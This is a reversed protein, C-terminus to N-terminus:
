TLLRHGVIGMCYPRTRVASIDQAHPLSHAQRRQWEGLAAIVSSLADADMFKVRAAEQEAM